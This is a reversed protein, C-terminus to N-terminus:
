GRLQFRLLVFKEMEFEKEKPFDAGISITGYFWDSHLLRTYSAATDYNDYYSYCGIKIKANAGVSYSTESTSTLQYFFGLANRLVLFNDQHKWALTNNQAWSLKNTIKKSFSMQTVESFGDQKYFLFLQGLYIDVYSLNIDKFFNFKIFPDLPVVLRIGSHVSSKYYKSDSILYHASAVYNNQQNAQVQKSESTTAQIIANKEKEIVFKFEESIKPVHIKIRFDFTKLLKQGEKKYIDYSFNISSKNLSKDYKKNVFYMDVQHNISTWYSSTFEQTDDIYEITKEFVKEIKKKHRVKKKNKSDQALLENAAL